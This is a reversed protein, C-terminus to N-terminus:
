ASMGTPFISEVLSRIESFYTEMGQVLLDNHGAGTLKVLRKQGSPCVQYLAEADTVPIIWDATGHFFLMLTNSSESGHLYGCVAAGDVTRTTTEMASTPEGFGEPRPHFVFRSVAPDDIGTM